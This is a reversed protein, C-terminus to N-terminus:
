AEFLPVHRLSIRPTYMTGDCLSGLLVVVM